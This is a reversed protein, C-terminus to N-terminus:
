VDQAVYGLLGAFRAMWARIAPTDDLPVGAEPALTVYTFRWMTDTPRSGTLSRGNSRTSCASKRICFGPDPPGLTARLANRCAPSWYASM